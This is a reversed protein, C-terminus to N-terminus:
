FRGKKVNQIVEKAHQLASKKKFWMDRYDFPAKLDTDEIFITLWWEYQTRTIYVKEIQVTYEDVKYTYKKNKM